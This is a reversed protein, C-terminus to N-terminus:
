QKMIKSAVVSALLTLAPKLLLPLFGGKQILVKKIKVSNKHKAIKRLDNKYLKLAKLKKKPVKIVGKLINKAIESLVHFVKCPCSSLIIKRQNKKKTKALKKLTPYVEIAQKVSM